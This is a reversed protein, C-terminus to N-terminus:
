EGEQQLMAKEVFLFVGPIMLADGISVITQIPRLPITDSLWRM